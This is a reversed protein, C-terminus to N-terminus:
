FRRFSRNPVQSITAEPEGVAEAIANHLATPDELSVAEVGEPLPPMEQAQQQYEAEADNAEQPYSQEIEDETRNDIWGGRDFDLMWGTDVAGRDIFKPLMQRHRCTPRVGAPCNCESFTCLYSSEVDLNHTLKTIRYENGEHRCTYLFTM